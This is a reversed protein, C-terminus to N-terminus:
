DAHWQELHLGKLSGGGATKAARIILRFTRLWRSRFEQFSCPWSSVPNAEKPQPQPSLGKTVMGMSGLTMRAAWLDCPCPRCDTVDESALPVAGGGWVKCGFPFFFESYVGTKSEGRHTDSQAKLDGCHSFVAVVELCGTKRAVVTNPAPFLWCKQWRPQSGPLDAWAGTGRERRVTGQRGGGGGAWVCM